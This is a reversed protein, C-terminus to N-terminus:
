RLARKRVAAARGSSRSSRPSKASKSRSASPPPTSPPLCSPDTEQNCGGGRAATASSSTTPKRRAGRAPPINASRRRPPPNQHWAHEIRDIFAWANEVEDRRAFLTADGSMADLLLREYAEPSAKGFSTGYHFDMKVPEIRLAPARASPRCACRSAKTRSSASSSCTRASTAADRNFLVRPADKFQVAIETGGRRCGSASACTSRCARGAGTTSTSGQARCLDRDDVAPERSGGAPLRAGGQRRDRRRHIAGRVVNTARRGRTRCRRLSRIVKVKEDRVADASLDTPPEMAVLCLLQLLHNQVMDRLAGSTTTIRDAGGEVGLPRRAPSRCTISTAATGSRSSFARQCLAAGHHEARDRQRSLPRHPLHRKEHFVDNVM